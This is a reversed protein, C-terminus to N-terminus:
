DIVEIQSVGTVMLDYVLVANGNHLRICGRSGNTGLEEPKNTGHIAFGTRGEAEGKLGKLGIWRSGLPYDPDSPQYRRGTDPDTWAPKVMRNDVVWLGAPTEHGIKGLGVMFSKVLTDKLYVELAFTSRYVRVNFPGQVVKLTAGAKLDTAKKINNMRMLLEYPVKFKRGITSLMDGPQVKYTTCHEDDGYLSRTLLWEESLRSLQSRLYMRQKVTMPLKTAESLIDRARIVEGPSSNLIDAAELILAAVKTSTSGDVARVVDTINPEHSMTVASEVEVAVPEIAAPEIQVRETGSGDGMMREAELILAAVAPDVEASNVDDIIDRIGDLSIDQDDGPSGTSQNPGYVFAVVVVVIAVAAFIYIWSRVRSGRGTKSPYRAM